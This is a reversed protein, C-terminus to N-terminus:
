EDIENLIYIFNIILQFYLLDGNRDNNNFPYNTINLNYVEQSHTITHATKNRLLKIFKLLDEYKKYIEDPEKEWVIKNKSDSIEIIFENVEIYQRKKKIEDIKEKYKELSPWNRNSLEKFYDTMNKIYRINSYLTFMTLFLNSKNWGNLETYNGIKEKEYEIRNIISLCYKMELLVFFYREDLINNNHQKKPSASIFFTTNWPNIPEKNIFRVKLIWNEKEDKENICFYYNLADIWKLKIHEWQELENLSLSLKFPDGKLLFKNNEKFKYSIKNYYNEFEEILNINIDSKTNKKM